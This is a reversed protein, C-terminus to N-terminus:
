QGVQMLIHAVAATNLMDKGAHSRGQFVSIIFNGDDHSVFFFSKREIRQRIADFQVIKEM